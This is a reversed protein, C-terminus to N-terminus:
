SGHHAVKFVDPRLDSESEVLRAEAEKEIDGTLLFSRAGFTIRLVMSENNDSIPGQDAFPALVDVRAGDIHLTEGRKIRRMQANAARAARDFLGPPPDSRKPAGELAAGIEFGRVIEGFGEVHDADGHSAAIWDLRKIGRRWLYPAVAAEGIGIRDEVFVDEEEEGGGRSDF